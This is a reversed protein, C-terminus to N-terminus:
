AFGNFEKKLSNNIREFLLVARDKLLSIFKNADTEKYLARTNANRCPLRKMPNDEDFWVCDLCQNQVASCLWCTERQGMGTIKNMKDILRDGPQQLLETETITYYLGELKLAEKINKVV